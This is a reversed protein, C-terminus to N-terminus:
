LIWWEMKPYGGTDEFTAISFGGEKSHWGGRGTLPLTTGDGGFFAGGLHDWINLFGRNFEPKKPTNSTLATLLIPDWYM